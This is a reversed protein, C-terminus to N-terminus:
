KDGELNDSFHSLTPLQCEWSALLNLMHMPLSLLFHATNDGVAKFFLTDVFTQHMAQDTHSLRWPLPWACTQMIKRDLTHIRVTDAPDCIEQEVIDLSLLLGDSRTNNSRSQGVLLALQSLRLWPLYQRGTCMMLDANKGTTAQLKRNHVCMM